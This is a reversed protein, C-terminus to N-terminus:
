VYRLIAKDSYGKAIKLMEKTDDIGYPDVENCKKDLMDEAHRFQQLVWKDEKRILNGISELSKKDVFSPYLTTRIEYDFDKRQNKETALISQSRLVNIYPNTVDLKIHSPLLRDYTEWDNTKIDLAAYNLWKVVRRLENVKVGNTAMGVQCGWSKILHILNVLEELDTETPEGGSINVWECNNDKVYSEVKKIPVEKLGKCTVLKSNMCYPCKLNCGALFISVAFVEDGMESTKNFGYIKPIDM